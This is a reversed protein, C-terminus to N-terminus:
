PLPKEPRDGCFSCQSQGCGQETWRNCDRCFQADYDPHYETKAGCRNCRIIRDYFGPPQPPFIGFARDMVELRDLEPHESSLYDYIRNCEAEWADDVADEVEAQALRAANEDASQGQGTPGSPPENSQPKNPLSDDKSENMTPEMMTRPIAQTKM